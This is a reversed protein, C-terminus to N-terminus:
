RTRKSLRRRATSRSVMGVGGARLSAGAQALSSTSLPNPHRKLKKRYSDRIREETSARKQAMIWGCILSEVIATQKGGPALQEFQQVIDERLRFDKKRKPPQLESMSTAKVM